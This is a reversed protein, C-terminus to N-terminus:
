HKFIKSYNQNITLEFQNNIAHAFEDPNQVGEVHIDGFTVNVNSNGCNAPVSVPYISSAGLVSNRFNELLQEQQTPNLVVEGIDAVIPVETRKLRSTALRKLIEARHSDPEQIAGNEIGNAYHASKGIILDVVNGKSDKYKVTDGGKPRNGSRANSGYEYIFDGSGGSSGSGHKKERERKGSYSDFDFDIDEISEKIDGLKKNMTKLESVQELASNKISDWAATYKSITSTNSKVVDLSKQFLSYAKDNAKQANSIAEKVSETQEVSLTQELLELSSFGDRSAEKIRNLIGNAEAATITGNTVLEKVREMLTTARGNQDIAKEIETQREIDEKYSKKLEDYMKSKDGNMSMDEFSAKDIDPFFRKLMDLSKDLNKEYAADETLKSWQEAIQEWLYVQKEVKENADDLEKNYADIQDQLRGIMDAFEADRLSNQANRLADEDEAWVLEGNKEVQVTKEDHARELDYRAQELALQRQRAENQKNLLDLQEKLPDILDEEYHKQKKEFEKQLEEIKRNVVDQATSIATEDDSVMEDLSAKINQLTESVKGLNEIPIELLQQNFNKMEVIAQSIGDKASQITSELEYWNDSGKQYTKQLDSAEKIQKKYAGILKEQLTFGTQIQDVTAQRNEAELQSIFNNYSSLVNQMSNVFQEARTVPIKKIEENWEMQQIRASRISEECESITDEIGFYDSSGLFNPNLATEETIRQNLLSIKSEYQSIQRDAESILTKYDSKNVVLGITAKINLADQFKKMERDMQKMENELKEQRFDFLKRTNQIQIRHQERLNKEAEDKDKKLKTADSISDMRDKDIQSNSKYRYTTKWEEPDLTGETIKKWLKAGEESGFLNDIKKQLDDLGKDYATIQREYFDIMEEGVSLMEELSSERGLFTMMGDEGPKVQELQEEAKTLERVNQTMDQYANSADSVYSELEEYKKKLNDLYVTTWDWDKETESKGGSNGKGGTGNNRSNPRKPAERNGKQDEDSAFPDFDDFMGSFDTTKLDSGIRNLADGLAQVAANEGDGKFQFPYDKAPIEIPKNSKFSEIFKERLSPIEIRPTKLTITFNFNKIADGLKELLEGVSTALKGIVSGINQAGTEAMNQLATVNGGLAESLVNSAEETNVKGEELADSFAASVEPSIQQLNEVVYDKFDSSAAAMDAIADSFESVMSDYDADQAMSEMWNGNDDTYQTIMDHYKQYVDICSEIASANNLADEFEGFSGAANKAVTKFEDTVNEADECSSVYEGNAKSIGFLSKSLNGIIKSGTVLESTYTKASKTGKGFQKTSAAISAGLSSSLMATMEEIYDTTADFGGNVNNLSEMLSDFESRNGLSSYFDELSMSGDKLNSQFEIMKKSLNDLQDGSVGLHTSGVGNSLIHSDPSIIRAFMESYQDIYGFGNLQADILEKQERISKNWDDAANMNLVYQDGIKTIYREYEPNAELTQSVDDISLANETKVVKSSKFSTNSGGKSLKSGTSTTVTTGSEYKNYLADLGSKLKNVDGLEAADPISDMAEGAQKILRIFEEWSIKVGSPIELNRAAELEKLSLGKLKKELDPINKELYGRVKNMSQEVTTGKGDTDLDLIFHIMKVTEPDINNLVSYLSEIKDQFEGVSMKGNQVKSKAEFYEEIIPTLSRGDDTEFTGDFLSYLNDNLWDLMDDKSKGFDISSWDINLVSQRIVDRFSDSLTQYADTTEISALLSQTLGNWNAKNLNNYKDLESQNESIKSDIEKIIEDFVSDIDDRIEDPTEKGSLNLRAQIMSILSLDDDKIESPKRELYKIVNDKFDDSTLREIMERQETVDFEAAQIYEKYKKDNSRIGKLVDPMKDAIQQNSLKRETELLEKLNKTIDKANDGLKVLANGNEDYTRTLTPFAEALDNNIKLFEKYEDATLSVNKGNRDVGESLKAFKEGNTEVTESIDSLSNRIENIEDQAKKGEEIANEAAHAFEVLKTIAFTIAASIGFTVIASGAAMAANHAITSLTSAKLATNEDKIKQQYQSYTPIAGKMTILQSALAAEAKKAADTANENAKVIDQLGIIYKDVSETDQPNFDMSRNQQIFRNFVDENMLPTAQTRTFLSSIFNKINRGSFHRNGEDDIDLLNGNQMVKKSAYVALVASLASQFLGLNKTAHGIGTGLDIFFNVVDKNIATTWVEAWANKLQMQHAEISEMYKENERLASGESNISDQLAEKAKDWNSLLAAVGNSRQKGAIKELLAAQNINSMDNWREAIGDFIEFTSKFTDADKMIDFGGKGAVNTLGAIEKRLKATSEAMNETELGAEELETKAGRIRLAATKITNGVVSADQVVENMAAGMALLQDISDGGLAISSASKEVIEGLQASSVAYNNGIENLKDTIRMADTAELNFAKLASVLGTTAETASLEGVNSYVISAKALEGAEKIRYGLRSWETEAEIVANNTAGLRDALQYSANGFSVIEQESGEAVKRLNTMSTDFQKVTEIGQRIKNFIAFVSVFSSLYVALNRLRSGIQEIVTVGTKGAASANAVLEKYAANLDEIEAKSAHGNLASSMRKDIDRIQNAYANAAVTNKSKWNEYQAAISRVRSPNATYYDRNKSFSEINERLSDPIARGDFDGKDNTFSNFGKKLTKFADQGQQSMKTYSDGISDLEKRLKEFSSLNIKSIDADIQNVINTFKESDNPKLSKIIEEISSKLANLKRIDDFAVTNDANTELEKKKRSYEEIRNTLDRLVSSYEKAAQVDGLASRSKKLEEQVKKIDQLHSSLEQMERLSEQMKAFDSDNFGGAKISKLANNFKETQTNFELLTSSSDKPSSVQSNSDDKVHAEQSKKPEAKNERLKYPDIKSTDLKSLDLDKLVSLNSFDLESLSKLKEIDMNGTNLGDFNLKSLDLIPVKLKGLNSFMWFIASLKNVDIGDTKLKTFDLKTTDIDSLKIGSLAKLSESLSAIADTNLNDPNLKSLDLNEINFNSLDVSNLTNLSEVIAKITEINISDLTEKLRSIESVNLKQPDISLSDIIDQIARIQQSIDKLSSEFDPLATHDSAKDNPVIPVDRGKELGTNVAKEIDQTIKETNLKVPDHDGSLAANVANNIDKQLSEKDVSVKHPGNDPFNEGSTGNGGNGTGNGNGGTGTNAKDPPGSFINDFLEEEYKRRYEDISSKYATSLKLRDEPRGIDNSNLIIGSLDTNSIKSGITLLKDFAKKTEEAQFGSTRMLDLVSALQDKFEKLEEQYKDPVVDLSPMTEASPNAPKYDQATEPSYNKGANPNKFKSKTFISSRKQTEAEITEGIGSFIETLDSQVDYSELGKDIDLQQKIKRALVPKLDRIQNLYYDRSLGPRLTKNEPDIYDGMQKAIVEYSKFEEGNTSLKTAHKSMEMMLDYIRDYLRYIEILEKHSKQLDDPLFFGNSLDGVKSELEDKVTKFEDFAGLYNVIDEYNSKQKGNKPVYARKIEDPVFTDNKIAKASSYVSKPTGQIEDRLKQTYKAFAKKQDQDSLMEKITKWEDKTESHAIDRQRAAMLKKMSKYFDDGSLQGLLRTKRKFGEIEKGDNLWNITKIVENLESVYKKIIDISQQSLQETNKTLEQLIPKTWRDLNYNGIEGQQLTNGVLKLTEKFADDVSSSMKESIFASIREVERNINSTDISEAKISLGVELGPNMGNDM